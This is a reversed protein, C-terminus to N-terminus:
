PRLWGAPVDARRAEEQATVTATRDAAVAAKLRTVETAAAERERRLVARQSVSQSANFDATLSAVRDVMATLHIADTDLAAQLQQMRAKWYAEDKLADRRYDGQRVQEAGPAPAVYAPPAAVPPGDKLDTNTYNTSVPWTHPVQKAAASAEALSPARDPAPRLQAKLTAIEAELAAIRALIAADSAQAHLAPSVLLALVLVALARM